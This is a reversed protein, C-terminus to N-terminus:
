YLSDILHETLMKDAIDKASRNYTGSEVESKIRNVLDMRVDSLNEAESLIEKINVAESSIQVTDLRPPVIPGLPEPPNPCPKKLDQPKDTATSLQLSNLKTELTDYEL